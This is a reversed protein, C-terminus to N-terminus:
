TVTNGWKFIQLIQEPIQEIRSLGKFPITSIDLLVKPEMAIYEQMVLWMSMPGSSRLQVASM